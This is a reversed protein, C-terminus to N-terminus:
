GAACPSFANAAGVRRGQLMGLGIGIGVVGMAGPEPLPVLLFADETGLANVGYAAIEGSDNIAAGRDRTRGAGACAVIFACLQLTDADTNGGGCACLM